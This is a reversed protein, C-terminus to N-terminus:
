RFLWPAHYQYYLRLGSQLDEFIHRSQADLIGPRLLTSIRRVTFGLRLFQSDMENAAFTKQHEQLRHLGNM